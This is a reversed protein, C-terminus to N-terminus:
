LVATALGVAHGDECGSRREMSETAAGCISGVFQASYGHPLSTQDDVTCVTCYDRPVFVRVFRFAQLTAM